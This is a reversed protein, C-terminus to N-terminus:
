LFLSIFSIINKDLLIDVEIPLNGLEIEVISLLLALCWDAVSWFFVGVQFVISHSQEDEIL